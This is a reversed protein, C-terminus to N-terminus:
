AKKGLQDRIEGPIKTENASLQRIYNNAFRIQNQAKPKQISDLTNSNILETKKGLEDTLQQISGSDLTVRGSMHPELASFKLRDDIKGLERNTDRLLDTIKQLKKLPAEVSEKHWRLNFEEKEKDTKMSAEIKKMLPENM